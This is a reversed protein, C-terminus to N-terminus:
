RFSTNTSCNELIRLMLVNLARVLQAGNETQHHVGQDVLRTLLESLLQHMTERSMALAFEVNSFIQILSNVLHKCLRVLTNTEASAMGPSTFALRVQLTIANVLPNIQQKVLEPQSIINKELHKLADISQFIDGSTIQALLYDLVYESQSTAAQRPRLPSASPNSVSSLPLKTSADSLQPLNLQDLDLSFRGSAADISTPAAPSPRSKIEVVDPQQQQQQKEELISSRSPQKAPSMLPPAVKSRKIREDLLSRDKEPIRGLYKFVNDGVISYAQVVTNLAAGRVSSDRDSIQAAILPFSRSPSCVNMGNRQILGGM